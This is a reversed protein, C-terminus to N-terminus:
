VKLIDSWRTTYRPSCHARKMQWSQEIGEAAFQVIRKGYKRNIGDMVKTLEKQKKQEHQIFLDPQFSHEPTLGGLLVGVKKYRLGEKFIYKLGQKAYHVLTPTYQTAEALAIHVSKYYPVISSSAYSIIFVELYNALSHQRRLKESARATYSAIAEELEGLLTIPRGFSRSSMIGKKSPRVMELPLCSIGRLEWATRLGVVSLNKRIWDDELQSFEWATNIQHRHLFDTIRSGIGWVQSVPFEYLYSEDFCCVGERTPDNKALYNAAKALTKTKGVGISVPIGVDQFVKRKMERIEDVEKCPILLFAEDISYVQLEDTFSGLIEMVRRSMDGYLAYNSSCQIVGHARFAAQNQFAPAGMPIGLAKAEKSRAIVCGDNNSLIVVPKNELKPNFVRECSVYFNNCDVLAFRKKNPVTSSM